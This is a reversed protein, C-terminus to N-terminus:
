NEDNEANELLHEVSLIYQTEADKIAKEVRALAAAAAHKEANLAIIKEVFHAKIKQHEDKINSLQM